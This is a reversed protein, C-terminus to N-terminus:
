EMHISIASFMMEEESDICIRTYISDSDSCNFLLVEKYSVLTLRYYLHHDCKYLKFLMDLLGVCKNVKLSRKNPLKTCNYLFGLKISGNSMYVTQYCPVAIVTKRALVHFRVQVAIYPHFRDELFSIDVNNRRWLNQFKNFCPM